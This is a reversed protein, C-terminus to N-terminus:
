SAGAARSPSPAASDSAQQLLHPVDARLRALAADTEARRAEPTAADSVVDLYVKVKPETGSPRVIVRADGALRFRLVDSPPLDGGEALDDVSLVELGGISAPPDARLRRMTAPIAALDAARRSVQDSDFRGIAEEVDALLDALTASRADQEVAAALVAVLASVGDKDRVVEPDVLYGLAEEFGFVLAPARSIWKFGTLTEVHLFGFRDAIRALGPTSVISCAFTGGASTSRQAIRWALLLGIENGSLRRWGGGDPLAVALRDADPDNALVLRSGTRSGLAFALDLTGPEEPNPFPATPFAPDPEAQEAVVRPQPLGAADLVAQVAELGVGHMPTYVWPLSAGGHASSVAATAAVYRELLDEGAIRHDDSRPPLVGQAVVAEIERLVEQDAPDVLQSGADAGGLYLKYGNDPAPNHSATIMVGADARLDRVAFALVPTPLARPLLTVAIGAAALVAAADEAFVQSNRRADYGVVASGATGRRALFRALGATTQQVVVRNMRNPGAGLAGRLGATGFALRSGFRDTLAAADGAALLAAAEARTEPDPDIAVWARAVAEVDNVAVDNVAGDNM